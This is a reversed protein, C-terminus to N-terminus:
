SARSRDLMESGRETGRNANRKDLKLDAINSVRVKAM